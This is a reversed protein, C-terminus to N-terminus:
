NRPRFYDQLLRRYNPPFRSIDGAEKLILPKQKTKVTEAQGQGLSYTKPPTQKQKNGYGTGTTGSTKADKADKPTLPKKLANRQKLMESARSEAQAKTQKAQKLIRITGTQSRGTDGQAYFSTDATLNELTITYTQNGKDTMSVTQPANNQTQTILNLFRPLVGSVKVTIKVNAGSAVEAQEPDLAFNTPSYPPTEKWLAFYRPIEFRHVRPFLVILSMWALILLAFLFRTRQLAPLPVSKRVPIHTAEDNARQHERAVFGGSHTSLTLAADSFQVANILANDTQPFRREITRALTEAPVDPTAATKRLRRWLTTGGFIGLVLLCGRVWSAVPYLVDLLFLVLFFALWFSVFLLRSQTRKTRRLHKQVEALFPVAPRLFSM